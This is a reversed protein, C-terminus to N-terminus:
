SVDPDFLDPHFVIKEKRNKPGGFPIVPRALPGKM